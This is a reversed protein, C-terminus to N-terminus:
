SGVFPKILFGQDQIFAQAFSNHILDNLLVAYKENSALKRAYYLASDADFTKEQTFNVFDNFYDAPSERPPGSTQARVSVATFLCLLILTWKKM